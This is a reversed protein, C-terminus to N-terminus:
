LWRANSETRDRVPWGTQASLFQALADLAPSAANTAGFLGPMAEDLVTTGAVSEAVLRRRVVARGRGGWGLPGALAGRGDSEVLETALTTGLTYRRPGASRGLVGPQPVILLDPGVELLSVGGNAGGAAGLLLPGGLGAVADLLAWAGVLAAASGEKGRGGRGLLGGSRRLRILGNEAPETTWGPPAPPAALDPQPLVNAAALIPPPAAGRVRGCNACVLDEGAVASQKEGCNLCANFVARDVHPLLPAAAALRGNGGAAPPPAGLPRGCAYCTTRAGPNPAACAPCHKM